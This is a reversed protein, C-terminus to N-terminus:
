GGVWGWAFWYELLHGERTLPVIDLRRMVENVGLMVVLMVDETLALLPPQHIM